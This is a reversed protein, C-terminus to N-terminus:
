FKKWDKLKLGKSGFFTSGSFQTLFNQDFVDPLFHDLFSKPLFFQDFIFKSLLNQYLSISIPKFLNTFLNHHVFNKGSFFIKTGFFFKDLINKNFFFIQDFINTEIFQAGFFFPTCHHLYFIYPAFFITQYM